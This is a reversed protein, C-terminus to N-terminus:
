QETRIGYKNLDIKGNCEFVIGEKELLARQAEAGGFAFSSVVKGSSNVVRHCPINEQDPNHHLLNGVVRALKKNGLYEAIQGYTAVKGKPIAKVFEYVKEKMLYRHM